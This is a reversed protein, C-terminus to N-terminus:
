QQVHDLGPSCKGATTDSAALFRIAEEDMAMDPVEPLAQPLAAPSAPAIEDLDEIAAAQFFLQAPTV